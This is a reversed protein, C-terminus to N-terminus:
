PKRIGLGWPSRKKTNERLRSRKWKSYMKLLDGSKPPIIEFWQLADSENSIKIADEKELSTLLFRIDYHYHPPTEEFRPIYYLGLDFIGKGKLKLKELGSEERVERIAESLLDSSGEVHGGLQLWMKLKKHKTLLFRTGDTNEVWASTTIHGLSCERSLCNRNKSIFEIFTRALNADGPNRVMYNKISNILDDQKRKNLIM